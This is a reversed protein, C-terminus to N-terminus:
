NKTSYSPSKQVKFWPNYLVPPLTWIIPCNGSCLPQPVFVLSSHKLKNLQFTSEANQTNLGTKQAPSIRRQSAEKKSDMQQMRQSIYAMFLMSISQGDRQIHPLRILNTLSKEKRKHIQIGLISMRIYNRPSASWEGEMKLGENLRIIQSTNWYKKFVSWSWWSQNIRLRWTFKNM